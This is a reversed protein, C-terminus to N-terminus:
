RIVGCAIRDGSDGAPQSVYDDRKAHVILAKGILDNPGGDRLTAGAITTNLSAMGMADSQLNPLDGLHRESASPGGHPHSSPNFHEGASKADPASCDGTQHVHFGHPTNPALGTIQGGISVGDTTTMFTFSGAATSGSTRNLTVQAPSSAPAAATPAPPAPAPPAEKKGCAGLLAAPVLVLLISAKMPVCANMSM